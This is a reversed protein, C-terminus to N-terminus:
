HINELNIAKLKHKDTKTVLKYMEEKYQVNIKFIEKLLLLLKLCISEKQKDLNFANLFFTYYANNVLHKGVKDAYIADCL